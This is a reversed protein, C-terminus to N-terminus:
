QVHSSMARKHNRNLRVPPDLWCSANTGVMSQPHTTVHEAEINPAEEVRQAAVVSTTGNDGTEMCQVPSTTVFEVIVKLRGSSVVGTLSNVIWDMTNLQLTTATVPENRYEGQARKVAAPIRPGLVGTAMSQVNRKSAHSSKRNKKEERMKVVQCCVNWDKMNPLLTTVYGSKRRKGREV